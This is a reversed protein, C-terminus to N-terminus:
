KSPSGGGACVEALVCESCRPRRAQCVRRGHEILNLHLELRLAAPIAAGLYHHAQDATTGASLWGLRKAVRLIHTDVPFVPRGFEFLAVCAATKPGVGPLALLRAMLESTPYEGWEKLELAPDLGALQRVVEKIVAARRKALGAPRIAKEISPLSASAVDHWDPFRRRLSEYAARANASTTNQSLITRVLTAVPGDGRPARPRGYIARLKRAVLRPSPSLNSAQPSPPRRSPKM